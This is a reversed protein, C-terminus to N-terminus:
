WSPGPLETGDSKWLERGHAGDDATFSLTGGVDTFDDPFRRRDPGPMIDKVM